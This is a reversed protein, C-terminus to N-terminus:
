GDYPASFFRAAQVVEPSIEVVDLREVGPHRMVAGGTMGSGLGVVLAQKGDLRLFMPIHGLLLQTAVDKTTSAEPKGNVRLALSEKGDVLDHEVSVTSGAGDRYYALRRASIGARYTKLSLFPDGRWLGMTFARRWTDDFVVGAVIVFAISATPVFI